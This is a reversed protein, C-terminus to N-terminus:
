PILAPPTALTAIVSTVLDQDFAAIPGGVNVIKTSDLDSSLTTLVRGRAMPLQVPGFGFLPHGCVYIRGDVIMTVTCSANLSLDGEMLVASVMVGPKIDGDDPRADTTGGQTAAM